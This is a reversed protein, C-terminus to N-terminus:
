QTFNKTSLLLPKLQDVQKVLTKLPLAALKAGDITAGTSDVALELQAKMKALNTTIHFLIEVLVDGKVIPHEAGLGIGLRISEANVVFGGDTDINISGPAALSISKKSNILIFDQNANLHLRGSNLIIQKGSYPFTPVFPVIDKSPKPNTTDEEVVSESTEFDVNVDDPPNTDLNETEALSKDVDSSVKKIQKQARKRKRSGFLAYTIGEPADMLHQYLEVIIDWLTIIIDIM